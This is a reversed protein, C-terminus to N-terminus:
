KNNKRIKELQYRNRLLRTLLKFKDSPMNTIEEQLSLIDDIMNEELNNISNLFDGMEELFKNKSNAGNKLLEEM